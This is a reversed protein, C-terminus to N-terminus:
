SLNVIYHAETRVQKTLPACLHGYMLMLMLMVSAQADTSVREPKRNDTTRVQNMWLDHFIESVKM